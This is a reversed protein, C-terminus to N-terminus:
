PNLSGNRSSVITNLCIYTISLSMCLFCTMPNQIAGEDKFSLITAGYVTIVLHDEGPTQSIFTLASRISDDLRLPRSFIKTSPDWHNPTM